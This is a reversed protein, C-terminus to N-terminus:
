WAEWDGTLRVAQLLDYYEQRHQRFFLSLYPKDWFRRFQGKTPLNTPLKTSSHSSHRSKSLTQSSTESLPKGPDNRPCVRVLSFAAIGSATDSRVWAGM